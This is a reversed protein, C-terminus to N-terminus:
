KGLEKITKGVGPIRDAVAEVKQVEAGAQQAAHIIKGFHAYFCYTTGAFAVIAGLIIGVCLGHAFGRDGADEIQAALFDGDGM